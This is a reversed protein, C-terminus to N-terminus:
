QEVEWSLAMKFYSIDMCLFLDVSLSFLASNPSFYIAIQVIPSVLQTAMIQWDHVAIFTAMM